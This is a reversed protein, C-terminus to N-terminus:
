PSRRRGFWWPVVAGLVLMLLVLLHPRSNGASCDCGSRGAAGDRFGSDPGADQWQPPEPGPCNSTGWQIELCVSARPTWYYSGNPELNYCFNGSSPGDYAPNCFRDCICLFPDPCSSSVDVWGDGYQECPRGTADETPPPANPPLWCECDIEAVGLDGDHVLTEDTSGHEHRTINVDCDPMGNGKFTFQAVLEVLSQDTCTAHLQATPVDARADADHALLVGLAFLICFCHKITRLRSMTKGM